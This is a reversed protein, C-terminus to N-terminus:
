LAGQYRYARPTMNFYKVFQKAFYSTNNYGVAAAIQQIQMNTHKLLAAAQEVREKNVFDIFTMGVERHFQASLYNPTVVLAEAAAKVTLNDSLHSKIYTVALKSFPKLDACFNEQALECYRRIIKLLLKNAADPSKQSEIQMAIQGSLRDLSYPHIGSEELAHRLQTNLIICMNQANRLPNSHRQFEPMQSGLQQVCQYAMSLNGRKVAEMLAAGTEYRREVQRMESMDEFHEVLIINRRDNINWQYDVYQYPVPEPIHKLRRALLVMLQHLTEYAIVPQNRCFAIIRQIAPHEMGNQRLQSRADSESFQETLCPGVTLFSQERDDYIACYCINLVSRIEYVRGPKMRHFETLIQNEISMTQIIGYIGKSIMEAVAAAGGFTIRVDIGTLFKVLEQVIAAKEDM